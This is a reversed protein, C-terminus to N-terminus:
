EINKLSYNGEGCEDCKHPRSDMHILLHDRYGRKSKFVAGCTKCKESFTTKDNQGAKAGAISIVRTKNASALFQPAKMNKDAKSPM